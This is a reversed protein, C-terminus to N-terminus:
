KLGLTTKNSAELMRRNLDDFASIDNQISNMYDFTSVVLKSYVRFPGNCVFESESVQELNGSAWIRHGGVVFSTLSADYSPSDPGVAIMDRNVGISLNGDTVQIAVKGDEMVDFPINVEKLAELSPCIEQESNVIIVM